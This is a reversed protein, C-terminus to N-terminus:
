VRRSHAQHRRSGLGRATYLRDPRASLCPGTCCSTEPLEEQMMDAAAAGAPPLTGNEAAATAAEMKKTLEERQEPTMEAMKKDLEEMAKNAQEM